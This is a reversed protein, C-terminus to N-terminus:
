EKIFQYDDCSFCLVTMWNLLCLLFQSQHLQDVMPRAAYWVLHHSKTKTSPPIDPVGLVFIMALMQNECLNEAIKVDNCEVKTVCTM